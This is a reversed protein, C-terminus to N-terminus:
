EIDFGESVEEDEDIPIARLVERTGDEEMDVELEFEDIPIAKLVEAEGGM